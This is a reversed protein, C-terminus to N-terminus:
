IALSVTRDAFFELTLTNKLCCSLLSGACVQANITQARGPLWLFGVFWNLGTDSEWKWLLWSLAVSSFSWSCFPPTKLIVDLSSLHTSSLFQVGETATDPCQMTNFLSLSLVVALRSYSVDKLFYSLHLLEVATQDSHLFFINCSSDDRYIKLKSKTWNDPKRLIYITFLVEFLCFSCKFIWSDACTCTVTIPLNWRVGPLLVSGGSLPKWSRPMHTSGETKLVTDMSWLDDSCKFDGEDVFEFLFGPSLCIFLFM